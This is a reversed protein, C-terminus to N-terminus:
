FQYQIQFREYWDHGRAGNGQAVGLRNRVSLGDWMTDKAFFYTVDMDTENATGNAYNTSAWGNTPTTGNGYQSNTQIGSGVLYYQAYSILTKIQKNMFYSTGAIKWAQGATNREILGNIMQTTYLPDTSYGWSYPSVLNGNQFTNQKALINNYAATLQIWPTDVGVLAGYAQTNAAYCNSASGTPCSTALSNQLYNAGDPNQQAFQFGFLPTFDTGTKLRYNADIWLLKSFNYFEHWWLAAKLDSDKTGYKIGFVQAGPANPTATKASGTVNLIGAQGQMDGTYYLNTAAMNSNSRGMFDWIRMGVFTVDKLPEFDKFPYAEGYLARWSSPMMRSDSPMVWPTDIVQDPGRVMFYKTSFKGYGEKLVYITGGPLSPDTQYNGYSGTYQPNNTPPKPNVGLSNATGLVASAQFGYVPATLFGGYGGLSFSNEGYPTGRGTLDDHKASNAEERAFFYARLNGHFQTDKLWAMFDPYNGDLLLGEEKKIPVQGVLNAPKKEGKENTQNTANSDTTITKQAPIPEARVDFTVLGFILLCVTLYVSHPGQTAAFVHIARHSPM